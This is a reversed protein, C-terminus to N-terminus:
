EESSHKGAFRRKKHIAASEGSKELLSLSLSLSLM